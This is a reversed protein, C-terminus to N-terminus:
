TTSLAALAAILVCGPSYLVRNYVFFPSPVGDKSERRRSWYVLGVVGRLAFVTAIALTLRPSGPLMASAVLCGSMAFFIATAALTMARSPLGSQLRGFGSRPIVHAALQDRDRAPWPRGLAWGLHGLGILGVLAGAAIGASRPTEIRSWTAFLGIALPGLLLWQPLRIAAGLERRATVVFVIAFGAAQVGSFVVLNGFRTSVAALMLAGTLTVLVWTVMHWVVLLTGRAFPEVAAARFPTVVRKAGGLVHVATIYGAWLAFVLLTLNPAKTM